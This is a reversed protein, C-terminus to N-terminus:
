LNKCKVENSYILFLWVHFAELSHQQILLTIGSQCSKHITVCVINTNYLQLTNTMYVIIFIFQVLNADIRPTNLPNNANISPIEALSTSITALLHFHVSDNISKQFIKFQVQTSKPVLLPDLPSALLLCSIYDAM